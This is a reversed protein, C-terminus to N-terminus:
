STAHPAMHSGQDPPNRAKSISKFQMLNFPYQYTPTYQECLLQCSVPNFLLMLFENPIANWDSAIDKFLSNSIYESYNVQILYSTLSWVAGPTLEHFLFTVTSRLFYPSSPLPAPGYERMAAPNSSEAMVCRTWPLCLLMPGQQSERVRQGTISSNVM